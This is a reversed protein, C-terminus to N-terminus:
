VAPAIAHHSAGLARRHFACLLSKVIRNLVEIAKVVVFADTNSAVWTFTSANTPGTPYISVERTPATIVITHSATDSASEVGTPYYSSDTLIHRNTDCTLADGGNEVARRIITVM